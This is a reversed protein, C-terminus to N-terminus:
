RSGSVVFLSPYHTDDGERHDRHGTHLLHLRHELGLGPVPRAVVAALREARHRSLHEADTQVLLLQGTHQACVGGCLRLVDARM